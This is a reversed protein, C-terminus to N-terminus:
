GEASAAAAVGHSGRKRHQCDCGNCLAHGRMAPLGSGSCKARGVYPRGNEDERMVRQKHYPLLGNVTLKTFERGCVGCEGEPGLKDDADDSCLKCIM